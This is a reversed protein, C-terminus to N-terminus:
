RQQITSYRKGEHEIAKDIIEWVDHMTFYVMEDPESGDLHRHYMVTLMEKDKQKM